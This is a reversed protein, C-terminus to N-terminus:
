CWSCGRKKRRVRWRRRRSRTRGPSRPPRSARAARQGCVHPSAPFSPSCGPCMPRSACRLWSRSAARPVTRPGRLRFRTPASALARGSSASTGQGPRGVPPASSGRTLTTLETPLKQYSFCHTTFVTSLVSFHFIEFCSFPFRLSLLSPRALPARGPPLCLSPPTGLPGKLNCHCSTLRGGLGNFHLFSVKAFM